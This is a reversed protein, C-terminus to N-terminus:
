PGCKHILASQDIGQATYLHELGLETGTSRKGPTRHMRGTLSCPGAAAVEQLCLARFGCFGDQGLPVSPNAALTAVVQLTLFEPDRINVPRGKGPDTRVWDGKSDGERLHEGEGLWPPDATMRAPLPPLGLTRLVQPCGGRVLPLHSKEPNSIPAPTHDVLGSPLGQKAM